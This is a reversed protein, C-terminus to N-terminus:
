IKEEGIMNPVAMKDWYDMQLKAKREGGWESIRRRGQTALSRVARVLFWIGM